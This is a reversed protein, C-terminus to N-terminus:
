KSNMGSNKGTSKPDGSKMGADKAPVNKDDKAYAGNKYDNM